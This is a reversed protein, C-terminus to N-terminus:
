AAAPVEDQIEGSIRALERQVAPVNMVLARCVLDWRNWILLSRAGKSRSCHQCVPIINDATDRGGAALGHVHDTETAKAGCYGCPGSERIEKLEKKSVGRGGNEAIRANRITVKAKTRARRENLPLQNWACSDCLSGWRYHKRGCECVKVRPVKAGSRKGPRTLTETTM